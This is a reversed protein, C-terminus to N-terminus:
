WEMLFEHYDDGKHTCKTEKATVPSGVVMQLVSSFYGLLNQCLLPHLEFNRIRLIAYKDEESYEEVKLNGTTYYKRWMKPVLDAVKEVSFFYKMFLRIILSFKANTAGLKQFMEDGYGFIRKMGLFTLGELGTSYFDMPEVDKYNIPHGLDSMLKELKRLGEEGEHRLVFEGHSKLAVGRVRGEAEM